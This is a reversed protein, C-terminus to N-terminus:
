ARAQVRGTTYLTIVVAIWHAELRRKIINREKQALQTGLKRFPTDICM